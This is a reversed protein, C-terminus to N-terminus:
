SFRRINNIDLLYERSEFRKKGDISSYSGDGQYIFGVKEMVKGSAPNEKAHKAFLRVVGLQQAAFEVMAKSAETTLGINWYPKMICYGLEFMNIELNFCFGGSGFLSNNQKLVFGWTYNTDKYVNEAENKLWQVTEHVSQHLNWSMHKCVDPDSTWNMYATEADEIELPRLIIRETELRPTIM